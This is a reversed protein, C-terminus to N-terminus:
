PYVCILNCGVQALRLWLDLGYDQDLDIFGLFCYVDKETSLSKFICTNNESSMSIEDAVNGKFSVRLYYPSAKLVTVEMGCGLLSRSFFSSDSM